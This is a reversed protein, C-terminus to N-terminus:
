KKYDGMSLMKELYCYLIIFFYRFSMEQIKLKSLGKRRNTWDTPVVAYKYGRIIAKLPMEVTLNFHNSLLPQIGDITQRSYLKFANTVDNYSVMFLLRILNNGLRNLLLKHWPYDIVRAPRTFRSGFVCDFGELAKKYMRTLDRPNDSNDGMVIAVYVGKYKKLGTRVAFGYGSTYRNNVIRLANVTRVLSEARLVTDDTSHDNVVLIEHPIDFNNLEAHVLEITRKISEAENRAPIIVSLLPTKEELTQKAM